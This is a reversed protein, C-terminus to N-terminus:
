RRWVEAQPASSTATGASVKPALMSSNQAATLHATLHHPQPPPPKLLPSQSIKGPRPTRATAPFSLRTWTWRGVEFNIQNEQINGAELSSWVAAVSFMESGTNEARGELEDGGGATLRAGAAMKKKIVGHIEQLIKGFDFM